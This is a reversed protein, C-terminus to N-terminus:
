EHYGVLLVTHTEAVVSYATCARSPDDQQIEISWDTADAASMARRVERIAEPRGMCRAFRESLEAGLALETSVDPREAAPDFRTLGVDDCVDLGGPIVVVVGAANVCPALPPIEDRDGGFAGGSAWVEACQEVAEMGVERDLVVQVAPENVADSYCVMTTADRTGASNWAAVGLGAGAAGIAIAGIVFWRRGRPPRTTRVALEAPRIPMAVIRDILADLDPDVGREVYTDAVPKWWKGLLEFPDDEPRREAM